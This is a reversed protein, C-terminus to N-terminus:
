FSEELMMYKGIDILILTCKNIYSLYERISGILLTLFHVLYTFLLGSEKTQALFHVTLSDPIELRQSPHVQLSLSVTLCKRIHKSDVTYKKLQLIFAVYM